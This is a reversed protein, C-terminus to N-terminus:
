RAASIPAARLARLARQAEAVTGILEGILSELYRIKQTDPLRAYDAETLRQTVVRELHQGVPQSGNARPRSAIIYHLMENIYLYKQETSLENFQEASLIRIPAV